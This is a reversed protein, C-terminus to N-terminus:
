NLSLPSHRQTGGGALWDPAQLPSAALGPWVAPVTPMIDLIISPPSDASRTDAPHTDAPHSNAPHTDANTDNPRTETLILTWLILTQKISTHLSLLM